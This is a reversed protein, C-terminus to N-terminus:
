RGVVIKPVSPRSLFPISLFTRRAGRFQVFLYFIIKLYKSLLPTCNIMMDLLAALKNKVIQEYIVYPLWHSLLRHNMSRSVM